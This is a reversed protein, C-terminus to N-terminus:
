PLLEKAMDFVRQRAAVHKEDTINEYTQIKKPDMALDPAVPKVDIRWSNTQTIESMREQGKKSLLWNVYVKAANPHPANNLLVVSNGAIDDGGFSKINKGLGQKQFEAIPGANGLGIAIHHRKRVMWEAMQRRNDSVVIDQKTLLDRVFQEGYLNLLTALAGNGAGPLRPDSLVIKGKWRPDLLDRRSKFAAEPVMDRDVMWERTLTGSIYLVYKKANDAFMSIPSDFGGIWRSPDTVEPLMLAPRIPDIIGRSAFRFTEADIGGIRLDWLNQGLEREKLVKSRFDRGNMGHYEVKIGPYDQEFSLLAQRLLEGSLASIVVSGEKKAAEVTRAWDDAANCANSFFVSLCFVALLQKFGNMFEGRFKESIIALRTHDTLRSKFDIYNAAGPL